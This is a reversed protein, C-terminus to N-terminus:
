LPLDRGVCFERLLEIVEDSPQAPHVALFDAQQPNFYGMLREFDEPSATTFGMSWDPFTRRPIQGDSLKVIRTHRLDGEIIRYLATVEEQDGELVQMMNGGSCLLMGTIRRRTNNARSKLLLEKLEREVMVGVVSSLYVIHYM